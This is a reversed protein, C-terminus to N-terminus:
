IREITLQDVADFVQRLEALQEYKRKFALLERFATKLLAAYKDEAKMITEISHYQAEKVEINFFLRQPEQKENVTIVSRIINRAQCERWNEAAVSDRWEFEGHLPADEPRSENVLDKATLRNEQELRNCERVVVEAAAKIHSSPKIAYVM